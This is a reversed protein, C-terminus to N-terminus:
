EQVEDVNTKEWFGTEVNERRKENCVATERGQNKGGTSFRGKGLQQKQGAWMRPGVEGGSRM